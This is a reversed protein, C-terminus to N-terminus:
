GTLEPENTALNVEENQSLVKIEGESDANILSVNEVQPQAAPANGPVMLEDFGTAGQNDTESRRFVYKPIRWYSGNRNVSSAALILAQVAEARAVPAKDARNDLSDNLTLPPGVPRDFLLQPM